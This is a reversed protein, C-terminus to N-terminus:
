CGALCLLVWVVVGVLMGVLTVKAIHMFRDYNEDEPYMESQYPSRHSHRHGRSRRKRRRRTRDKKGTGPRSM